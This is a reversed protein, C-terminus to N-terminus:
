PVLDRFLDRTTTSYGRVHSNLVELAIEQEFAALAIAMDGFAVNLYQAPRPHAGRTPGSFADYRRLKDKLHAFAALHLADHDLIGGINDRRAVELVTGADHAAAAGLDFGGQDAARFELQGYAVTTHTERSGDYAGMFWAFVQWAAVVQPSLYARMRAEIESSALAWPRDIKASDKTLQRDGRRFCKFVSTPLSSDGWQLINADYATCIPVATWLADGSQFTSATAAAMDEILAAKLEHAKQRDGWQRTIAPLLWATLAIGLLTVVLSKPIRRLLRRKKEAAAGAAAPAAESM